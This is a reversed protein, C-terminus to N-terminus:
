SEGDPEEFFPADGKYHIAYGYFKGGQSHEWIGIQGETAAHVLGQAKAKIRELSGRVYHSRQPPTTDCDLYLRM